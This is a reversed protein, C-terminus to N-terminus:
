AEKTLAKEIFTIMYEAIDEKDTSEGCFIKMREKYYGCSLSFQLMMLLNDFFFALTGSDIEKSIRGQEQAKAILCRYVKASRIEIEKAFEAAYIRCSGSTIENYMANYNSHQESNRVLAYVINRICVDIDDEENVADALVRDLLQLSHALCARFFSDKDSYYKYIVGVSVGARRAISRMSAGGLGKDVFENIGSELINNLIEDDLKKYMIGREHVIM